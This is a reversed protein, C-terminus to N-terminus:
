RTKLYFRAFVLGAEYLLYMLGGMICLSIADPPTVAAMLLFAAILAYGRHRRLTTQTVRGSIILVAVALPTVVLLVGMAYWQGHDLAGM